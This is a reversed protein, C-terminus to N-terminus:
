TMLAIQVSLGAMGAIGLGLISYWVRDVRRNTERHRQESRAEFADARQDQRDFRQDQRDFRQDQRDFRQDQRDLREKIEIQGRELSGLTRYVEVVNVVPTQPAQPNEAAETTM